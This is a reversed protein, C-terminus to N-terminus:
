KKSGKLSYGDGLTGFYLLLVFKLDQSLNLLFFVWIAHLNPSIMLFSYATPFNIWVLGGGVDSWLRGVKKAVSKPPNAVHHLWFRSFKKGNEGAL